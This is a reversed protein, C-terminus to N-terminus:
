KFESNSLYVEKVVKLLLVVFIVNEFSVKFKAIM